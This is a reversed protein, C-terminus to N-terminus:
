PATLAGTLDAHAISILEDRTVPRCDAAGSADDADHNDCWRATRLDIGHLDVGRLDACSTHRYIGRQSLNENDDSRNCLVADGVTAGHLQADRLMAGVLKSGSLDASSLDAGTANVGVLNGNRLDAGRLNTERLNSGVIRVGRLDQGHLDLSELNCGVCDRLVQREFAAPETGATVKVGVFTMGDLKAGTFSVNRFVVGVFKVDSLDADEFHAGDLDDGTFTAGRLNAGSLDVGNLDDGVFTIDHLDAGRLDHPLRCGVCNSLLGRVTTADHAIAPAFSFLSSALLALAFPRLM